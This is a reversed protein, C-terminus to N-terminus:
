EETNKIEEIYHIDWRDASLQALDNKSLENNTTVLIKLGITLIWSSAYRWEYAIGKLEEICAWLDTEIKKARPIDIWLIRQGRYASKVWGGLKSTTIAVAPVPLVEGSLVGRLFAWTKGFGGKKDIWITVMRDSQKDVSRILRLQTNRYKGKRFKITEVTDWSCWYDGDKQEYDWVDNADEVHWGLGNRQVWERLDGSLSFRCQWHKYGSKGTERAIIWKKADLEEKMVKLEKHHVKNRPLIIMYTKM